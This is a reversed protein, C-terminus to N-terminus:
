PCLYGFPSVSPIVNTQRTRYIGGLTPTEKPNPTTANGPKSTGSSSGCGVLAIGAAGVATGGAAGLLRRRSLRQRLFQDYVLAMVDEQEDALLTLERQWGALLASFAM